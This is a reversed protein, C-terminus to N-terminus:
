TTTYNEIKVKWRKDLSFWCGGCRIQNNIVTSVTGVHCYRDSIPYELVMVEVTKFKLNNIENGNMVAGVLQKAEIM